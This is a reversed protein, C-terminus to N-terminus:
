RRRSRRRRGAEAPQRLRRRQRRRRRGPRGQDAAAGPHAPGVGTDNDYLVKTARAARGNENDAYFEGLQAFWQEIYWGGGSDFGSDVALGYKAAGSDVIKQSMDRIDQLSAPPKNPDLGAQRSSRRTTSCCRTASTSRCAGSCAASTTPWCRAPCSRRPTSTARGSARRRRPDVGQHRDDDADHVRADAGHRAPRGQREAPVQHDRGRLWGPRHRQGEGQEPQRQLRRRATRVRDPQLRRQPRAVRHDGGAVTAAALADVPCAPLESIDAQATTTPGATTAPPPRAPRRRGPRIRRRRHHGASRHDRRGGHHAGGVHRRRLHGHHQRQRHDVEQGLQM